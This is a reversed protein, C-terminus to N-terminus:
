GAGSALIGITVGVPTALAFVLVLKRVLSFDEPFTKVLSIGLASAAAGKHIVIAMIIDLTAIFTPSLGLAIGEFCAHVSLAIM